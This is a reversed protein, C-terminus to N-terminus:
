GLQIRVMNSILNLLSQIYADSVNNVSDQGQGWGYQYVHQYMIYRAYQQYMKCRADQMQRTSYVNIDIDISIIYYWYQTWNDLFRYRSILIINDIVSYTNSYGNFPLHCIIIQVVVVLVHILISILYYITINNNYTDVLSLM